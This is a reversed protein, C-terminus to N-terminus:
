MERTSGIGIRYGYDFAAREIDCEYHNVNVMGFLGATCGENIIIAYKSGVKPSKFDVEQVAGGM